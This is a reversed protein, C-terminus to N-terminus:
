QHTVTWAFALFLTIVVAAPVTIVCGLSFLTLTVWRSRMGALALGTELIPGTSFLASCAAAAVLWLLLYAPDLVAALGEGFLGQELVGALVLVALYLPWLRAWRWIIPRAAATITGIWNNV